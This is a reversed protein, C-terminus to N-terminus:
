KRDCKFLEKVMKKKQRLCYRYIETEIKVDDAGKHMEVFAPNNTIYRYYSEAKQSTYGRATLLNNKSCFNKYSKKCYIVQRAMSMIDWVVLYKDFFWKKGTLYKTTTNLATIDFFSNFANFVKINYDRIDKNMIARITRFPLVMRDGNIIDTIYSPIKEAYYASNMKETEGLFIDAVIYSRTKVVNGSYDAISYGIDYVLMNHPDVTKSQVISATEVDCIIQYKKSFM